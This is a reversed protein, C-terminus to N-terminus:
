TRQQKLHNIIYHRQCHHFEIKFLRDEEGGASNMGMRPSLRFGSNIETQLLAVQAIPSIEMCIPSYIALNKREYGKIEFTLQQGTWALPPTKRNGTTPASICGYTPKTSGCRTSIMLLALVGLVKSSFVPVHVGLNTNLHKNSGLQLYHCNKRTGTCLWWLQCAPSRRDVLLPVVAAATWWARTLGSCDTNQLATFSVWRNMRKTSRCLHEDSLFMLSLSSFSEAKRPIQTIIPTLGAPTTCTLCRSWGDLQFIYLNKM